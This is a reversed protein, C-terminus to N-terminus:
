TLAQEGAPEATKRFKYVYRCTAEFARQEAATANRLDPCGLECGDLLDDLAEGATAPADEPFQTMKDLVLSGLLWLSYNHRRLTNIALGRDLLHTMVPALLEVISDGVARDSEERAWSKGWGAMDLLEARQKSNPLMIKKTPKASTAARVPVWYGCHM